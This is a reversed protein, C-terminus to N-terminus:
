KDNKKYHEIAPDDPAPADALALLVGPPRPPLYNELAIRRNRPLIAAVDYDSLPTPNRLRTYVLDASWALHREIYDSVAFQQYSIGCKEFIEPWVADVITSFIADYLALLLSGVSPPGTADGHIDHFRRRLREKFARFVYVDSPQLMSTCRAPIFILNVCEEFSTQMVQEHLHCGATDCCLIIQSQPRLVRGVFGLIRIIKVMIRWNNWAKTSRMLYINRPAADSYAAFRESSFSRRDGIILHPIERNFDTDDSIMAVYTINMRQLGRKVGMRSPAGSQLRMGTRMVVGQLPKPVVAVSTEDLNM